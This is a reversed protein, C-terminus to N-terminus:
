LDLERENSRSKSIARAIAKGPALAPRVYDLTTTKSESRSWLRAIQCKRDEVTPPQELVQGKARAERRLISDVAKRDLIIDTRERARSAAVYVQNASMTPSAVLVARDVTMGQGNYLTTAYAHGIRARGKKDAIDATSVQVERKGITVTMRTHGNKEAEIKTITAQTGNIVGILDNRALFEIKDGKALPLLIQKRSRDLTKISVDPGTVKGEARMVERMRENLHRVEANSKALVVVSQSPYQRRQQKWKEVANKLADEQGKAWHLREHKEFADLAKAANGKAFDTVAHQAWAEIQRRNTDLKASSVKESIIKLGSGAGIAQLQKRDGVLIVKAGAENAERLLDRMQRSSLLGAEDAILVTKRDFAKHETKRQALWSDAARSEIGCGEGLQKAARWATATGLVRLGEAQYAKAVEALTTTKGTGAGGEIVALRTPQCAARVADAQEGELNAEILRKEDIRGPQYHAKALYSAMDALEQEIAIMDKSSYIPQGLVDKGLQVVEQEALVKEVEEKIRETGQGTGTVAAAVAAFVDQRGFISENETLLKLIDSIPVEQQRESKTVKQVQDLSFGIDDVRERWRSHRDTEELSKTKRSAKTIAASLAPADATSLGHKEMEAVIQRRRGSFRERVNETVGAIEFLGREDTKEICYGLEALGRALEARYIAGAAMKWKFLQRGDIAGSSGDARQALNFIVAHSHIQPDAEVEGSELETPRAEGHPFIAGSLKVPELVTGGKGRRAFAANSDVVALAARVAKDQAAEITARREEDTLAWVVSVSKPASFTLDYGSVRDAHTGDANQVLPQGAENLASHLREFTVDDIEAGDVLGLSGSPSYWRGAPEKGGTYYRSQESLYYSAATGAAITCVM